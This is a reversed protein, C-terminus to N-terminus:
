HELPSDILGYKDEYEEVCRQMLQTMAKLQEPGTVLRTHILPGTSDEYLQGFDLLFEAHNYGVQLHNAYRRERRDTEFTGAPNSKSKPEM